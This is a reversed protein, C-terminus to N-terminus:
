TARLRRDHVPSRVVPDGRWVQQLLAEVRAERVDFQALGLHLRLLDRIAPEDEVVLITGRGNPM